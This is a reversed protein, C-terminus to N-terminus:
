KVKGTMKKLTNDRDIFHHKLAAVVHIVALGILALAVYYHIQGAIDSQDPFLEGAGPILFWGFVDIGRGDSTSILYGSAFLVFLLVYMLLHAAKAAMIEYPKGEVKPVPSIVKWVFRFITLGALLIGVSKHWFPAIKYWESYYTLEMMWLGLIFMAIIVLASIWHIIRATLNYNKVQTTTTM